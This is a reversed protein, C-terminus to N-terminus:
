RATPRRTFTTKTYALEFGARVANRSSSNAPRATISALTSGARRADTLRAQILASQVGRGRYSPLTSAIHLHAVTVDPLDILALGASGAIEGDIRALYLRTDARMLAIKALIQLLVTPRRGQESSFGALSAALFAEAKGATIAEIAVSPHAPSESPIHDVAKVFTNSFANAAYGRSALLELTDSGVFPCLDIEAALGLRAYGAELAVLERESVPADLGLGTVHNLKRGYEGATYAAVGGGISVVHADLEPQLLRCTEVQRKLHLAEAHELRRALEPTISLASM